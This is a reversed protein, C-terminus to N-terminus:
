PRRLPKGELAQAALELFDSDTVLGVVREDAEIVPLCGIKHTRLLRAAVAADTEPHVAVVERSMVERVLWGDATGQQGTAKAVDTRTVVGVLRSREDVVPLHRVRGLRMETAVEVLPTMERTTLVDYAMLESVLMAPM